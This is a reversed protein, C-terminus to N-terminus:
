FLIQISQQLTEEKSQFFRQNLARLSFGDGSFCGSGNYVLQTLFDMPVPHQRDCGLQLIGYWFSHKNESGTHIPIEASTRLPLHIQLDVPDTLKMQIGCDNKQFPLSCDNLVVEIKTRDTNTPIWCSLQFNNPAKSFHIHINGDYPFRTFISFIYDNFCYHGPIYNLLEIGNRSLLFQSQLACLLGDAGRMTCCWYAEYYDEWTGLHENETGAVTCLDCGFGGNSRQACELANYLIRNALEPYMAKQTKKYLDLALLYSDVVACPETWTHRQFWNFNAYNETMGNEMYLQFYHEAFQLYQRKGTVEYYRLLGRVGSLFAHTQMSAHVCDMRLFTEAMEELLPLVRIDRTVSYYESLADLAIFCCGIDTSLIWGDVPTQQTTGIAGGDYKRCKDLPYRCFAGQTPLYLRDVIRAALQIYRENGAVERYAMLGRLLWNHGALQQENVINLSPSNDGLFGNPKLRREVGDVLQKLYLPELGLRIKYLSLALILRGEWDGPWGYGCDARHFVQDPMYEYEQLRQFNKKLRIEFEGAPWTMIRVRITEEM